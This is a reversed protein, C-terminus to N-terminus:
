ELSYRGSEADNQPPSPPPQLPLQITFTTGSGEASEVTIEGGHAAVIGHVISLGLGTGKGVEKTTFFPEFIKDRIDQPIPRGTNHVQLTFCQDTSNYATRITIEGGFADMADRANQLLNIIVQTLSNSDCNIAPLEEALEKSVTINSWTRLQHEILFLTDEVIENLQHSDIENATQRSYTLLSRVINAIRWGNKNIKEVDILFQAADIEGANLNRTLRESLGTILQLPSNIEHAMGAALSGIGAMKQSQIAIEEAKIREDIDLIYSVTGIISGDADYYPLKSYLTWIEKQSHFGSGKVLQNVVPTATRMVQLDHERSRQAVEPQAVLDFTTKGIIEEVPLGVYYAFTANVHIFRDDKSKYVIMVPAADLITQYRSREKELAEEAKTRQLLLGVQRTYISVLEDAAFSTGAPMIITFDGIRRQDVYIRAVIVEGAAFTKEVAAIIPQSIVNGVLERLNAFRTIIQNNLKREREADHAWQKDAIEFGLLASIEQINVNVGSLAVTKFDMGNKDFLNFAVFKGGSIKLLNDTINQFDIDATSMQLFGESYDLLDAMSESQQHLAAEAQKQETIDVDTGVVRYPKGTEDRMATGRALFWRVSGDKHLMRHVVEYRPKLGELHANAEAMVQDGDDPHVYQGWDDLHNEIEHDAYGIMAKLSPDLYIENTELNWDWVGVRGANTTLAYRMENERLADEAQKRESIDKSVGIIGVLEGNDDLIPTDTVFASFVTGDRRQVLFEGSWSKGSQLQTMIEAAQDQSAQPVTVEYITRGLMEQRSWGYLAEAAPNCYTIVGDMDTAIVAQGVADLLKAQFHAAQSAQDALGANNKPDKRANTM